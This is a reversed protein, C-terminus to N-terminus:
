IASVLRGIHESPEIYRETTGMHAHRALIQVDRISCDCVGAKRAAQTIFTRRGSHSSCGEFKRDAFLREFWKRVAAITIPSPEATKTGYIVFAADPHQSRLLGLVISLHPHMPLTAEHHGKAISSPVFLFDSRVVGKADTVHKWRLGAIEQARLGAKFSLLVMAQDRLPHPGTAVHSLIEMFMKTDLVKARKTSM